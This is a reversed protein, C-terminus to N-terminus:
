EDEEEHEYFIKGTRGDRIRLVDFEAKEFDSTIGKLIEDDIRYAYFSLTECIEKYECVNEWNHYTCCEDAMDYFRCNRCDETVYTIELQTPRVGNEELVFKLIENEKKLTEFASLRAERETTERRSAYVMKHIKDRLEKNQNSTVWMQAALKELGMGKWHEIKEAREQNAM